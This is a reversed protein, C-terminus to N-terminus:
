LSFIRIQPCKSKASDQKQVDVFRDYLMMLVGAKRVRDLYQKELHMMFHRFVAHSFGQLTCASDVFQFDM